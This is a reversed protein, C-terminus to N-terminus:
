RIFQVACLNAAAVADFEHHDCTVVAGNLSQALAVACCDALSIRRRVAKIRGASQWFERSFDERPTVGAQILGDLLQKAIVEGYVRYADYYVECFNIAHAVTTHGLDSLIQEVLDAGSEDRLYAILASADLVYIM